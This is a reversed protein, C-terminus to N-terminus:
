ACASVAGDVGSGVAADCDVLVLGTGVGAEERVWNVWRICVLPAVAGPFVMWSLMLRFALPTMSVVMLVLPWGM